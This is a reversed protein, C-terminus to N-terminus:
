NMPDVWSTSGVFFWIELLYVNRESLEDFLRLAFHPFGVQIYSNIFASGVFLNIDHGLFVVGQQSSSHRRWLVSCWCFHEFCFFFNIPKRQYRWYGDTSLSITGTRSVRPSRSWQNNLEMVDCWSWANRQVVPDCFGWFWIKHISKRTFFSTDRELIPEFCMFRIPNDLLSESSFLTPNRRRWTDKAPLVHQNSGRGSRSSPFRFPPATPPNHQPGVFPTEAGLAAARIRRYAVAVLWRGSYAAQRVSHSRGRKM